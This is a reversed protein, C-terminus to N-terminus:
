TAVTFTPTSSSSVKPLNRGPLDQHSPKVTPTLWLSFTPFHGSARKPEPCSRDICLHPSILLQVRPYCSTIPYFFFLTIIKFYM